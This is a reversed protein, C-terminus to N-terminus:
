PYILKQSRIEGESLTFSSSWYYHQDATEAYYSHTGATLSVSVTGQDGYEPTGSTFWNSLTGVYSGDVEITIDGHGGDNDTWFFIGTTGDDSTTEGTTDVEPATGSYDYSTGDITYTGSVKSSSIDFDWDVTYDNSEYTVDYDATITGSVTGSSLDSNLNYTIPGDIIVDSSSYDSFTIKMYYDLASSTIDYSGTVKVGSGSYSIDYSMDYSTDKAAKLTMGESVADAIATSVAKMSTSVIEEADEETLTNFMDCGGALFLISVLVFVGVAFVKKNTTKLNSM